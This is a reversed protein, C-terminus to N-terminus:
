VQVAIMVAIGFALPIQIAQIPSGLSGVCSACGLFVLIATGILEGLAAVLKDWTSDEEMKKLGSIYISVRTRLVDNLKHATNIHQQM